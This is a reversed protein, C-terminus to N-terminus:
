DRVLDQSDIWITVPGDNELAVVMHEGFAGSAVTIGHSRLIEAFHDVLASAVEPPAADTFGPRRGKRVDAYLTFQSVVLMGAAGDRETVLDRLSRNMKRDADEFIRLEMAKIAMREAVVATDTHGIGVLALLGRDIQGVVNGDLQM